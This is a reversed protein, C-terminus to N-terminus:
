YDEKNSDSNGYVGSLLDHEAIGLGGRWEISSLAVNQESAQDATRYLGANVDQFPVHAGLGFLQWTV